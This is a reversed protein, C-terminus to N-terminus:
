RDRLLIEAQRTLNPSFFHLSPRRVVGVRASRAECEMNQERVYHISRDARMSYVALRFNKRQLDTRVVAIEFRLKKSLPVERVYESRTRQRFTRIRFAENIIFEHKRM